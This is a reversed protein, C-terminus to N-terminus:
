IRLLKRGIFGLFKILGIVILISIVLAIISIWGKYELGFFAFIGTFFGHFYWSLINETSLWNWDM